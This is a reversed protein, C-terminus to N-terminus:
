LGFKNKLAHETLFVPILMPILQLIVIAGGVTGVVAIDLTVFALILMLFVTTFGTMWGSKVWLKAFHRHAFSWAEKSSM